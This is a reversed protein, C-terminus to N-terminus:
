SKGNEGGEISTHFLSIGRLETLWQDRQSVWGISIMILLKKTM